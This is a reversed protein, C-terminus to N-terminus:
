VVFTAVEAFVDLVGVDVLEEEPPESVEKVPPWHTDMDSVNETYASSEPATRGEEELTALSTSATGDVGVVGQDSSETLRMGACQTMNYECGMWLRLAVAVEARLRGVAAPLDLERVGLVVLTNGHGDCVSAGGTTVLVIKVEGDTRESLDSGLRFALNRTLVM